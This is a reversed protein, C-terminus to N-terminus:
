EEEQGKELNLNEKNQDKNEELKMM